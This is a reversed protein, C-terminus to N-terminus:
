LSWHMSGSPYIQELLLSNLAPEALTANKPREKAGATDFVTALGTSYSARALTQAVVDVNNNNGMNDLCFGVWAVTVDERATYGHETVYEPNNEAPVKDVLEM